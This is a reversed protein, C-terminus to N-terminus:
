SKLIVHCLKEREREIKKKGLLTIINSYVWSITRHSPLDHSFWYIITERESHLVSFVLDIRGTVRNKFKSNPPKNQKIETLLTNHSTYYWCNFPVDAGKKLATM